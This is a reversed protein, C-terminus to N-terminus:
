MREFVGMVTLIRGEQTNRLANQIREPGLVDMLVNLNPLASLGAPVLPQGLRQALEAGQMWLVERFGTGAIMARIEDPPVLFSTAGSSAWPVPYILPANPGATIDFLAFRSGPRLVRHIEAYMRPKDEINMAAHLTWVADFSAETFPLALANDCVFTVRDTLQTWETLLAGASCFEPTLDLV